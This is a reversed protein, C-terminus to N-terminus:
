VRLRINNDYGLAAFVDDGIDGTDILFNDNVTFTQM